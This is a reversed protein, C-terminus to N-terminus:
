WDQVEEKLAILLKMVYAVGLALSLRQEEPYRAMIVQDFTFSTWKRLEDQVREVPRTHYTDTRFPNLVYDVLNARTLQAATSPDNMFPWPVDTTTSLAGPTFSSQDFLTEWKANRSNVRAMISGSLAELCNQGRASEINNHLFQDWAEHSAIQVADDTQVSQEKKAPLDGPQPECLVKETEGENVSMSPDSEQELSGAVREQPAAAGGGDEGIEGLKSPSESDLIAKWSKKSPEFDLVKAPINVSPIDSSARKLRLLEDMNRTDRLGRGNVPTRRALMGPPTSPEERIMAPQENGEADAAGFPGRLNSRVRRTTSRPPTPPQMTRMTSSVLLTSKRREDADGPSRALDLRRVESMLRIPSGPEVKMAKMPSMLKSPSPPGGRPTGFVRSIKTYIDVPPSLSRNARLAQAAHSERVTLSKKPSPTRMPLVRNESMHASTTRFRFPPTTERVKEPSEPPTPYHDSDYTDDDTRYAPPPSPTRFVRRTLPSSPSAHINRKKRIGGDELVPSARRKNKTPSLAGLAKDYISSM